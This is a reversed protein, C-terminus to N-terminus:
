TTEADAFPSEQDDPGRHVADLRDWTIAATACVALWAAGGAWGGVVDSAWHAGLYVRSMGIVLMLFLAAAWVWVRLAWNKTLRSVAFAVGGYLTVSALSHGSPFSGGSEAILSGLPRARDVAIKILEALFYGGMVSALLFLPPRVSRTRRWLWALGLIMLGLIVIKDGALTVLKMAETMGQSRHVVVFRAVPTDFLALEERSVVDQIVAGFGWGLAISIAMGATLYLGLVGKPQFRQRLFGLQRDYRRRFSAIRPREVQRGLWARFGIESRSLRRAAIVVIALIIFTVALIGSARAAIHEVRRWANGALYGLVTFGGAWLIGGAVNYVFFTRYPMKAMGSLGPVLVRFLATFRGIFVATGGKERILEEAKQRRDPRVLRRGLKTGFMTSGWKAGVAYGVSDGVVAGLISAVLAGALSVKGQFALVGGLLVAIEGPFLFGVFASAELGPLLFILLYAPWGHLKLISDVIHGL